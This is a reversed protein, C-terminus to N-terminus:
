PSQARNQPGMEARGGGRILRVQFIIAFDSEADGFIRTPKYKKRQQILIEARLKVGREYKKRDSPKPKNYFGWIGELGLVPHQRLLISVFDM